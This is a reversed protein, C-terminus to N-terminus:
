SSRRRQALEDVESFVDPQPASETRQSVHHKLLLEQARVNGSRAKAGLLQLVEALDPVDTSGAFPSPPSSARSAARARLVTRASVGSAEAIRAASLGEGTLLRVREILQPTLLPPRGAM